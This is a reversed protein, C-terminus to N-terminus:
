IANFKQIEKCAATISANNGTTCFIEYFYSINSYLASRYLEQTAETYTLLGRKYYNLYNEITAGQLHKQDALFTIIKQIKQEKTM